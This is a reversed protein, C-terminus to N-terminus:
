PVVSRAVFEKHYQNQLDVSIRLVKLVQTTLCSIEFFGLYDYNPDQDSHNWIGKCWVQDNQQTWIFQRM